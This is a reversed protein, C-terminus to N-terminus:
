SRMQGPPVIWIEQVENAVAVPLLEPNAIVAPDASVLAQAGLDDMDECGSMGIDYAGLGDEFPSVSSVGHRGRDGVHGDCEAAAGFYQRLVNEDVEGLHEGVCAIDGM